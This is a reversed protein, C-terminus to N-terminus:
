LGLGGVPRIEQRDEFGAILPRGEDIVARVEPMELAAQHSTASEWVETVWVADEDNRDLSVLYQRCGPMEPIKSLVYALEGGKGPHARIKGILGYMLDAM